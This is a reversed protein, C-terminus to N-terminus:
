LYEGLVTKGICQSKQLLIDEYYIFKITKIWIEPLHKNNLIDNIIDMNFKINELKDAKINGLAVWPIHITTYHLGKKLYFNNVADLCIWKIESFYCRLVGDSAIDNYINVLKIQPQKSLETKMQEFFIENPNIIFPKNVSKCRILTIHWRPYWFFCDPFSEDLQYKYNHLQEFLPSATIEFVASIGFRKQMIKRNRLYVSKLCIM